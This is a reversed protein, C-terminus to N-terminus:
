QRGTYAPPEPLDSEGELHLDVSRAMRRGAAVAYAVLWAGSAADGAAFVGPRSTAHDPGVRVNGRQDYAVGLDDLLGDHVPQVFGMALLVLDADLRFETDPRETMEPRGSDGHEWAVEVADLGVVRGGRGRFGKTCVSWLREAGEGDKAETSRARPLEPWHQAPDAGVPPRPLIELQHVSAAGQRLATGVCDAGTDGGGIVVVRRGRAHIEDGEVPLRAVRRNQQVLFDLAQYVGALGRGPVDLDRPRGCGVCLCTADFRKALYEASLDRGVETNTEIQVGEARMQELRRDLVRKELKFDPVGYRLLGGARDRMEFMTVAHGARRLQQAAAMGAPGSGVVSVSRGTERRPPLPTIWGEAFAREVLELENQQVTVPDGGLRLTCAAECPAPCLRGTIEPFNNTSHLLDAAERWRGRFLLENWEPVVNGLPCGFAHCFPVGCDLCRSAQLRLEDEAMSRHAERYDRLRQELPAADATRRGVTIFAKDDGTM